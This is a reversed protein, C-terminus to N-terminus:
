LFFMRWDGNFMFFLGAIAREPFSISLSCYNIAICYSFDLSDFLKMGIELQIIGQILSMLLIKM